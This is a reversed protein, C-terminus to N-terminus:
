KKIGTNMGTIGNGGITAMDAKVGEKGPPFANNM